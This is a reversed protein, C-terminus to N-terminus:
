SGAFSGSTPATARIHNFIGMMLTRERVQSDVQEKAADDGTPTTTPIIFLQRTLEQSIGLPTPKSASAVFPIGIGDNREQGHKSWADLWADYSIMHKEDGEARAGLAEAPAYRTEVALTEIEQYTKLTLLNEDLARHRQTISRLLRRIM